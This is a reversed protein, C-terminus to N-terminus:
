PSAADAQGSATSRDAIQNPRQPGPAHQPGIEHGPGDRCHCVQSQRPLWTKPLSPLEVGTGSRGVGEIGEPKRPSRRISSALMNSCRTEFSGAHWRVCMLFDFGRCGFVASSRNSEFGLGLFWDSTAAATWHASRIMLLISLTKPLHDAARGLHAMKKVFVWVLIAVVALVLRSSTM